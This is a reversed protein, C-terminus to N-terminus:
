FGGSNIESRPCRPLEPRRSSVYQDYQQRDFGSTLRALRAAIEVLDTEPTPHM